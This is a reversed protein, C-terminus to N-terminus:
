SGKHPPTFNIFTVAIYVCDVSIITLMKGAEKWVQVKDLSRYFCPTMINPKDHSQKLM